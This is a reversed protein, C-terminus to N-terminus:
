PEMFVSQQAMADIAIKRVNTALESPRWNRPLVGFDFSTTGGNTVDPSFRLLLPRCITREVIQQIELISSPKGSALIEVSDTSASRGDLLSQTVYTAVDEIWVYDRMTTSYGTIQSARQCMGNAILTPILGRRQHSRIYGYVSTLRYIKRYLPASSRQLLEEQQLKLRSYPRLPLPAYDAGVGRQGEFLGGASSMLAMTSPVDPFRVALREVCGLVQQFLDLESSAVELTSHFGASGASWLFRIGEVSETSQLSSTLRENVYSEIAQLQVPFQEINRWDLELNTAEFSASEHLAAAIASGIMGSGFLLVAPAHRRTGSAPQPMLLIM